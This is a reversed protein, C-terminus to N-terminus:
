QSVRRRPRRPGRTRHHPFVVCCRRRRLLLQRCHSVARRTRPRQPGRGVEVAQRPGRCPHRDPHDRPGAARTEHPGAVTANGARASGELGKYSLAILLPQSRHVGNEAAPRRLM